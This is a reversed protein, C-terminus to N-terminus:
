SDGAPMGVGLIILHYGLISTMKNNDIWIYGFFPFSEELTTFHVSILFFALTSLVFESVELTDLYGNTGTCLV